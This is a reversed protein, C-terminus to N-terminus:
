SRRPPASSRSGRGRRCLARSRRPRPPRISQAARSRSQTARLLLHLHTLQQAPRALMFFRMQCGNQGFHQRAPVHGAADAPDVIRVAEAKVLTFIVQKELVVGVVGHPVRHVPAVDLAAVEDAPLAQGRRERRVRRIVFGAAKGAAPDLQVVPPMQQDVGAHVLLGRGVARLLFKLRLADRDAVAHVILFVLVVRHDGAHIQGLAAAPLIEAVRLDPALVSRKIEHRAVAARVPAARDQEILALVGEMPMVGPREGFGGVAVPAHPFAGVEEREVPLVHEDRARLLHAGLAQFEDVAVRREAEDPLIVLGAAPQQPLM